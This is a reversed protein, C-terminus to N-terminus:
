RIGGLCRIARVPEGAFSVQAIALGRLGAPASPEPNQLDLIRVERALVTGRADIWTVTAPAAESVGPIPDPRIGSSGPEVLVSVTSTWSSGDSGKVTFGFSGLGTATGPTFRATRGNSQLAATGLSGGAVSYTPSVTKFGSTFTGLDIDITGGVQVRAHPMGLWNAYEEIAAYGSTGIKTADAKKPDSGMAAEWFDPLGDNDTDTPKTGGSISGYGNNALGTETQSTYVTSSPGTTGATKGSTGKGLTNFQSWVLSDIGDYPLAGTRSAALHVATAASLIPVTDTLTSWPSTLLTGATNEWKVGTPGGNLTGDMTSDKMNGKAYISQNSDIMYWTLDTSTHPGFVYYNGVIDHKFATSTRTQYGAGFNYLVNNVFVTNTKALPNRNHSNVFANYFWSWSSGVSECHASFQQNIPDAFLCHQFTVNDVPTNQWDTSVGDINNWPAFEFSCHDLMYLHGNHMNFANDNLSNTESGPRIRVYRLIINSQGGGSIEAGRFGIGGGPATQGEVTIDSSIAVSSKLQVYGGVDFVVIRSPKSVADRFSGAGSDNLNTVHVVTGNRGGTAVAGFGLAGPFAPIGATASPALSGLVVIGLFIGPKM